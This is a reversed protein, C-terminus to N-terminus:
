KLTFDTLRGAQFFSRWQPLAFLQNQRESITMKCFRGFEVDKYREALDNAEFLKEKCAPLLFALRTSLNQIFNPSIKLTHCLQYLELTTEADLNPIDLTNEYFFKLLILLTSYKCKSRIKYLKYGDPTFDSNYAFGASVRDIHELLCQSHNTLYFSSVTCTKGNQEVDNPLLHLKLDCMPGNIGFVPDNVRVHNRPIEMDQFQAQVLATLKGGALSRLADVFVEPVEYVDTIANKSVVKERLKEVDRCRSLLSSIKREKGSEYEVVCDYVGREDHRVKAREFLLFVQGDQPLSVVYVSVFERGRVNMYQSTLVQEKDVRFNDWSFGFTFVPSVGGGVGSRIDPFYKREFCCGSPQPM